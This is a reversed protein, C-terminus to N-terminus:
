QWPFLLVFHVFLMTRFAYYLTYNRIESGLWRCLHEGRRVGKKGLRRCKGGREQESKIKRKAGRWVGIKGQTSRLKYPLEVKERKEGEKKLEVM